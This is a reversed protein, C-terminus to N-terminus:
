HEKKSSVIRLFGHISVGLLVLILFILGANDLLSSHDRGPLYFGTLNELRSDTANHCDACQLAEKSQSVEHNLPWLTQTEIFGYKGSYPLNLYEMGKTISTNWDFDAWLAGSGKKGVLKPQVMTMNKVDYPQKGRMIKVPWIKSPSKPDAPNYHDEYSGLLPNLVLPKTTDKIKDTILFHDATGNFWIYEPRINQKFVATGHKPDFHIKVNKYVKGDFTYTSDETNLKTILNGSKDHM